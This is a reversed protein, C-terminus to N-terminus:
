RKRGRTVGVLLLGSLGLTLTAPEPVVADSDVPFTMSTGPELTYKIYQTLTGQGTYDGNNQFYGALPFGGAIFFGAPVTTTPAVAPNNDYSTDVSSYAVSDTGDSFTGVWVGFYSTTLTGEGVFSYNNHAVVDVGTEEVGTTNTVTYTSVILDSSDTVTETANGTVNAGGALICNGAVTHDGPLETQGCFVLGDARAAQPPILFILAAAVTICGTGKVIRSGIDM